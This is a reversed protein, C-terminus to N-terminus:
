EAPRPQMARRLRGRTQAILGVVGRPLLYVVVLFTLGLLISFFNPFNAQLLEFLIVLPVVGLVPGHLRGAGGLLAMILVQFSIIPNFAITPDIYTWRPAMIAGVVSMVAASIVFVLIKARTTDVGAHRAATEDEGIARLAWGLRSRGIWWGILFVLVCTGLLLWFIDRPTVDVFVFRGVTGGLKAEAYTVLQRVLEALGFTFIVFYVGSLRLTSLGVVFAVAAGALAAAPYVLALPMAEGLFAMTYAGLGFFAVTALSVYRTPGSFLSWATALATYMLISVLLSQWFPGVLFPMPALAAAILLVAIPLAPGRASM